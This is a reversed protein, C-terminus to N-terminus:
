LLIWPMPLSALMGSFLLHAFLAWGLPGRGGLYPARPVWAFSTARPWKVVRPVKLLDWAGLPTPLTLGERPSWRLVLITGLWLLDPLYDKGVSSRRPLTGLGEPLDSVKGLWTGKAVGLLHGLDCPGMGENPMSPLRLSVSSAWTPLPFNAFPFKMPRLPLFRDDFM